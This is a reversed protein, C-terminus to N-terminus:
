GIITTSSGTKVTDGCSISDGIRGIGRNNAFVTNSASSLSGDHSQKGCIHILWKDDKRHAGLGDIIVDTSGDINPRSPFCGHGMSVDTKRCAGPM